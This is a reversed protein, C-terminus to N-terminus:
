GDQVVKKHKWWKPILSNNAVLNRRQGHVVPQPVNHVNRPHAVDVEVDITVIEVDFGYAGAIACYPAFEAVTTNTNDVVFTQPDSDFNIAYQVADIFRRLNWAHAESHRKVDFEYAGTHVNIWFDDTSFVQARPYNVKAYTSKGSGSCGRLVICKHKAM